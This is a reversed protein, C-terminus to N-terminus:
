TFTMKKGVASATMSSMLKEAFLTAVRVMAIIWPLDLARDIGCEIRSRIRESESPQRLNGSGKAIVDDHGV